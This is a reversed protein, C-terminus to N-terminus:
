LVCLPGFPAALRLCLASRSAPCNRSNRHHWPAERALKRHACADVRPLVSWSWCNFPFLRASCLADLNAVALVTLWMM